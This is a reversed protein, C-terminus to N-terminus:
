VIVMFNKLYLKKRHFNRSKGDTQLFMLSHPLSDL